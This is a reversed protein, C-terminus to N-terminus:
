VLNFSQVVEGSRMYPKPELTLLVEPIVIEVPLLSKALVEFKECLEIPNKPTDVYRIFTSHVINPIRPKLEPIEKLLNSVVARLRTMNNEQDIFSLFGAKASLKAGNLKLKIAGGTYDNLLPKLCAVIDKTLLAFKKQENADPNIIEHFDTIIVITIHTQSLPYVYLAPNLERIKSSFEKYVEAMPSPLPWACALNIGLTHADPNNVLLNDIEFNTASPMYTNKIM